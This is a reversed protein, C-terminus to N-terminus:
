DRFMCMKTMSEKWVSNIVAPLVAEPHYPELLELPRCNEFVNKEMPGPIRSQSSRQQQQDDDSALDVDLVTCLSSIPQRVTEPLRQIYEEEKSTADIFSMEVRGRSAAWLQKQEDPHVKGYRMTQYWVSGDSLTRLLFEAPRGCGDEYGQVVAMGMVPDHLNDARRLLPSPSMVKQIDSCKGVCHIPLVSSWLECEHSYLRLVSIDTLLHDLFYTSLVHGSESPDPVLGTTLMVHAGYPITHPLRLVAHNPFRDDCLYACHSTVALFNHPREPLSRLHCIPPREVPSDPVYAVHDSPGRKDYEPVDFLVTAGAASDLRLDFTRVEHSSSAFVVRPHDSHSVLRIDNCSSKTRSLSSGIPGSWVMGGMDCLTVEGPLLVNEEFCRVSSRFVRTVDGTDLKVVSLHRKCRTWIGGGDEQCVRIELIPDTMSLERRVEGKSSLLGDRVKVKFEEVTQQASREAVRWLVLKKTSRRSAALLNVNTLVSSDMDSRFSGPPRRPFLECSRKPLLPEVHGAIVPAVPRKWYAALNYQPIDAGSRPDTLIGGFGRWGPDALGFDRLKPECYLASM